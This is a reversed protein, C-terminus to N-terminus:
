CHILNVRCVEFLYISSWALTSISKGAVALAKMMQLPAKTGGSGDRLTGDSGVTDSGELSMARKKKAAATLSVFVVCVLSFVLLLTLMSRRTPLLLARAASFSSSSSSSSWSKTSRSGSSSSSGKHHKKDKEKRKKKNNTHSHHRSKQKQNQSSSSSTSSSSSSYSAPMKEFIFSTTAPAHPPPLHLAQAHPQHTNYHKSHKKPQSGMEDAIQLHRSNSDTARTHQQEHTHTACCVCM